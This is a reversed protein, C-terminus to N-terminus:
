LQTQRREAGDLATVRVVLWACPTRPCCPEVSPSCLLHCLACHLPEVALLAEPEDRGVVAALVHEDVEGGDAAVAVLVEVVVLTDLVVCRLALLARLRFVDAGDSGGIRCYAVAGCCLHIAQALSDGLGYIVAIACGLSRRPYATSVM